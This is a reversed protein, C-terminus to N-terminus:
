RAQSLDMAAHLAVALVRLQPELAVRVLLQEHVQVEGSGHTHVADRQLAGSVAVRWFVDSEKAVAGGDAKCLCFVIRRLLYPWM